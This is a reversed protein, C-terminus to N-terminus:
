YITFNLIYYFQSWKLEQTDNKANYYMHMQTVVVMILIYFRELNGGFEKHYWNTSIYM